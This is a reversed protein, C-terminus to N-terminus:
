ITLPKTPETRKPHVGLGVYGAGLVLKKVMSPADKRAEEFDPRICEVRKGFEKKWGDHFNDKYSNWDPGSEGGEIIKGSHWELWIAYCSFRYDLAIRFLNLLLSVFYTERFVNARHAFQHRAQWLITLEAEFRARLRDMETQSNNIVKMLQQRRWQLVAPTRTKTSYASWKDDDIINLHIQWDDQEESKGPSRRKTLVTLSQFQDRLWDLALLRAGENLLLTKAKLEDFNDKAFALETAVALNRFVEEVDRDAFAELANSYSKALQRFVLCHNYFLAVLERQRAFENKLKQYPFAPKDLHVLTIGENADDQAGVIVSFEQLQVPSRGTNRHTYHPTKHSSTGTSKRSIYVMHKMSNYKERFEEGASHPDCSLVESILYKSIALTETELQWKRYRAKYTDDHEDSTKEPDIRLEQALYNSFAKQVNAPLREWPDSKFGSDEGGRGLLRPTYVRYTRPGKRGQFSAFIDDVADSVTHFQESAPATSSFCANLYSPHFGMSILYRTFREALTVIEDCSSGIIGAGMETPSFASLHNKAYKVATVFDEHLLCVQQDTLSLLDSPKSVFGLPGDSLKKRKRDAYPYLSGRMADLLFVAIRETAM